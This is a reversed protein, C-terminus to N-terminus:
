NEHSLLEEAVCVGVGSLVCSTSIDTSTAHTQVHVRVNDMRWLIEKRIM